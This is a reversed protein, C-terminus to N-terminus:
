NGRSLIKVETRRNKQRGEPTTNYAVPKSEGYGKAKVHLKNVGNKVLYNRVTGARAQSLKMNYDDKGVNDTHGGIEIVLETKFLMVEVLEDLEIFSKPRLTAKGTDFFVNDLTYVRPLEFTLKWNMRILQDAPLEIDSSRMQGNMDRYGAAYTCGNPILISFRGSDSTVGSYVKGTIASTFTITDGANVTGRENLVHVNLVANLSDPTLDQANVRLPFIITAIILTTSTLLKM